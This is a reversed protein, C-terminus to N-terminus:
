REQLWELQMGAEIASIFADTDTETGTATDTLTTSTSTTDTENNQEPTYSTGTSVVDDDIIEIHDNKEVPEVVPKFAAEVGDNSNTVTSNSVDKKEKM